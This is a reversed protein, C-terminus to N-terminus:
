PSDDKPDASHFLLSQLNETNNMNSLDDLTFSHDPNGRTKFRTPMHSDESFSLKKLESIKRKKQPDADYTKQLTKLVDLPNLITLQNSGPQNPTNSEQYPALHNVSLAEQTIKSEARDLHCTARDFTEKYPNEQHISTGPSFARTSNEPTLKEGEEEDKPTKM